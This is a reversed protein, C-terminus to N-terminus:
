RLCAFMTRGYHDAFPPVNDRDTGLRYIKTFTSNEKLWREIRDPNWGALSEKFWEEHEEGMDLFLVKKTTRDILRLMEEASISARNL